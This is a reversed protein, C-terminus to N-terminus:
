FAPVCGIIIEFDRIDFIEALVCHFTTTLPNASHQVHLYVKQVAHWRRGADSGLGVADHRYKVSNIESRDDIM